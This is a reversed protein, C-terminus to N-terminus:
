LPIMAKVVVEDKRRNANTVSTMQVTRSKVPSGFVNSASPTRPLQSGPTTRLPGADHPEHTAEHWSVDKGAGGSHTPSVGHWDSMM